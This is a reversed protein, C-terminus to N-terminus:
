LDIIKNAIKKFDEDHSVVIVTKNRKNMEQLFSMILEKNYSDLNGTPEDALIIECNKLLVRSLSVRQQEGGSLTYIKSDIKDALEFTDLADICKQRKESKSLKSGALVLMLNDYVNENDILGYNQFVYSLYNKRYSRSKINITDNNNKLIVEGSDFKELGAIINLITTKGTGSKGYIVVFDGSDIHLNFDNLVKNEYYSKNLNIIDIQM